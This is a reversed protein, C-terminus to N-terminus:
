VADRIGDLVREGIGVLGGLMKGVKRWAARHGGHGHGGGGAGPLGGNLGYVAVAVGLILVAGAVITKRQVIADALRRPKRLTKRRGKEKGKRGTGREREEKEGDADWGEDDSALPSPLPPPLVVLEPRAVMREADDDPPLDRANEAWTHVVSQPGMISHLAVRPHTPPYEQMLADAQTLLATLSLRPRRPRANRPPPSPSPFPATRAPIPKEDESLPSPAQESPDGDPSPHPPKEAEDEASPQPPESLKVTTKPSPSSPTVPTSTGDTAPAHEELDVLTESGGDTSADISSERERSLESPETSAYTSGDLDARNLDDPGALTIASTDTEAPEVPESAETKLESGDPPGQHESLKEEALPEPLDDGEEYLDPLMTLLSHVMGDEGEEEM